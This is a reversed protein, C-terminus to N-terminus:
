DSFPDGEKDNKDMAEKDEDGSDVTYNDLNIINIKDDESSDIPVSTGCNKFTWIVMDFIEDLAM